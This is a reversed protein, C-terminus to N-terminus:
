GSLMVELSMRDGDTFNGACSFVYRVRPLVAGPTLKLGLAKMNEFYECTGNVDSVLILCM